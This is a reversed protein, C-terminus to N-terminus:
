AAGGVHIRADALDWTRPNHNVFLIRDVDIIDAARRLMAMWPEVNAASLAAGSEDRVLTPREAGAQRCALKTLAMSLSEALITKEGGSFSEVFGERARHQPTGTDIVWIDLTELLRKGKADSVQTRVEVTFRTGFAAHLLDNTIENIEPIAADIVMAQLGDRGLDAAIRTWDALEGELRQREELLAGIRARGAIAQDLQQEFTAVHQHARTLTEDADKVAARASPLDPEPPLEPAPPLAELEQGLREVEATAANVQPELEVLRTEAETLGKAWPALGEVRTREQLLATERASAARGVDCLREIEVLAAARRQAAVEAAGEAEQLAARAAPLDRATEANLENSRLDRALADRAPLRVQLAETAALLDAPVRRALEVQKDDGDLGARAVGQPDAVGGAIQELTGRAQGVRLEAGSLLKGELQKITAEHEAIEADAATLAVRLEDLKASGELAREARQVRAAEVRQRHRAVDALQGAEGAERDLRRIETETSEVEAKATALESLLEPLRTAAARIADANELAKRNNAVKQELKAVIARASVLASELRQADAARELRQQEVAIRQRQQEELAALADRRRQLEGIWHERAVREADLGRQLAAVVVDACGAPNGSQLVIMELPALGDCDPLRAREDGIRAELTALKTKEARLQERAVEADAELQEMEPGLVRLLIDKRESPKASLFGRSEQATFASAFYISPDPLHEAAWADFSRVKSDPLVPAGSGDLVLAESKGSVKDVLHRLTWPQGNTVRAELFADAATALDLLSGHTPTRRFMAGPLALEVSTSKGAGNEGVIAIIRDTASLRSLDVAFERDFPGFGRIRFGDLRVTM